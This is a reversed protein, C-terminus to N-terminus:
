NHPDTDGTLLDLNVPAGDEDLTISEDDAVPPDNVESGYLSPDSGYESGYGYLSPDYGYESGYGYLSPDSGYLSPDSNNPFM